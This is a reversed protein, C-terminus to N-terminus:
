EGRDGCILFYSLFLQIDDPFKTIDMDFFRASRRGAQLSGHGMRPQLIGIIQMDMGAGVDHGSLKVSTSMAWRIM